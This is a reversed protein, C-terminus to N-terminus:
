LAAPTVVVTTDGRTVDTTPMLPTIADNIKSAVFIVDAAPNLPDFGMAETVDSETLTVDGSRGEFTNVLDPKGALEDWNSAGEVTVSGIVTSGGGGATSGTATEQSMSYARRLGATGADKLETLEVTGRNGYSSTTYRLYSVTHPAGDIDYVRLPSVRQGREEYEYIWRSLTDRQQRMWSEAVMQELLRGTGSEPLDYPERKWDQTL